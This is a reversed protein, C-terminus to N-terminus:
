EHGAPEGVRVEAAVEDELRARDLLVDGVHKGLEVQGAAGLRDDEGVLVAECPRSVAESARYPPGHPGGWRGPLRVTGGSTPSPLTPGSFAGVVAAGLVQGLHGLSDPVYGRVGPPPM